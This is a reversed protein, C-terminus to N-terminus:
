SMAEEYIESLAKQFAGLDTKIYAYGEKEVVYFWFELRNGILHMSLFGKQDLHEVDVFSSNLLNKLKDLNITEIIQPSPFPDYILLINGHGLPLIRLEKVDRNLNTGKVVAM